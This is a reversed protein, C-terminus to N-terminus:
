YLWVFLFLSLQSSAILLPPELTVPVLVFKAWAKAMPVIMVDAVSLVVFDVAPNPNSGLGSKGMTTSTSADLEPIAM